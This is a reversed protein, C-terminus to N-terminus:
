LVKFLEELRATLDADNTYDKSLRLILPDLPNKFHKEVQKVKIMRKYEEAKMAESASLFNDLLM